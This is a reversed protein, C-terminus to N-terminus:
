AARRARALARRCRWLYAPTPPVWGLQEAQGLDDRVAWHDHVLGDRVRFWHTQRVAFPRGTPAFVHAPRGDADYTVFPGAHTGRMLTEVAVLVGDGVAANEATGLVEWSLDGYAARLWRAAAAFAAPGSGRCDPPEVAAERNVADPAIVEAFAQEDGRGMLLISRVAVSSAHETM